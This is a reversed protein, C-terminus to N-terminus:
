FQQIEQLSPRTRQWRAATTGALTSLLAGDSFVLFRGEKKEKKEKKEEREKEEQQTFPDVVM